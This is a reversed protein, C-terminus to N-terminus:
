LFHSIFDIKIKKRVAPIQYWDRIQSLTKHIHRLSFQQLSVKTTLLLSDEQLLQLNWVSSGQEYFLAM